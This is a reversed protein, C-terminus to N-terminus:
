PHFPHYSHYPSAVDFGVQWLVRQLEARVEGVSGKRGLIM